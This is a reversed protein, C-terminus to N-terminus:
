KKGKKAVTIVAEYPGQSCAESDGLDVVVAYTGNALNTLDSNYIYKQEVADYRMINDTDASSVSTAPELVEGLGLNGNYSKLWVTPQADPVPIGNADVLKIKIPLVRGGFISNGAPNIPPQFGVFMYSVGLTNSDNSPNYNSDGGFEAYLVHDGVALGSPNHTHIAIGDVDTSETGLKTSPDTAYGSSDLEPDIYFDIDAYAIAAGGDLEELKARLDVENQHLLICAQDVTLKTDVASTTPEIVTFNVTLIGPGGLGTNTSFVSMPGPTVKFSYNGTFNSATFTLATTCTSSPSTLTCDPIAALSVDPAGAPKASTNNDFEVTPAPTYSTKAAGATDQNNEIKWAVNVTVTSGVLVDADLTAGGDSAQLFSGTIGAAAGGVIATASSPYFVDKKAFASGSMVLGLIGLTFSCRKIFDQKYM